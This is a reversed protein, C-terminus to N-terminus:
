SRIYCSNLNAVITAGEESSFSFLDSAHHSTLDSLLSLLETAVPSFEKAFVPSYPLFHLTYPAPCLPSLVLFFHPLM